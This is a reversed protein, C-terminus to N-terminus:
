RAPRHEEPPASDPKQFLRTVRLIAPFQENWKRSQEPTLVPNVEDRIGEFEGKFRPLFEDRLKNLQDYRKQVVQEVARAQEASLGLEKRISEVTEAVVRPRRSPPSQSRMWFVAGTAGLVAGCVAILASLWFMALWRRNGGAPDAPRAVDQVSTEEKM